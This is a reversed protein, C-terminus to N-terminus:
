KVEIVLETEEEVYKIFDEVYDEQLVANGFENLSSINEQMWARGALSIGIAQSRARTRVVLIDTDMSM